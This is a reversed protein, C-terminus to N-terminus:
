LLQQVPPAIAACHNATNGCGIFTCITAAPLYIAHHHCEEHIKMQAEESIRSECKKCDCKGVILGRWLRLKKM